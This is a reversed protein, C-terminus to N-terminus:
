VIEEVELMEIPENKDSYRKTEDFKIDRTSIVRYLSL